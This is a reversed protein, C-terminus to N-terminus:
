RLVDFAPPSSRPSLPNLPVHLPPLPLTPHERKTLRFPPPPPLPYHLPPSDLFPSRLRHIRHQFNAPPPLPLHSPGSFIAQSPLPDLDIPGKSSGFAIPSFMEEINELM